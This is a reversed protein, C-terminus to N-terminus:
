SESESMSQPALRKRLVRADEKPREYYNRRVGIQEFGRSAYLAAARENSVRVELYVSEVGRSGAVDLAHDLLQAGIGRGRFREEVAINAVEGQDQICWLVYYGIVGDVGLEAVWLEAGSRRLLTRFTAASWPTSFSEVELRAVTIVDASKMPRLVVADTEKRASPGKAVRMASM